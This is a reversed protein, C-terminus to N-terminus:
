ESFALRRWGEDKRAKIKDEPLAGYFAAMHFERYAQEV